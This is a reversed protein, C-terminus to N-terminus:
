ESQGEYGSESSETELDPNLLYILWDESALRDPHDEALTQARIDVVKELLIIAEKVQGNAEYAGALAHQSALRSPHDEALTQAEIDAVKELLIIAENVQGNAKYAGALAHQSALRSPHDEALTQAEIDVVKELLIIAENVQGNAQYAMALAHQSALRDPHDEALTQAKIDVVKELLIIAEKVQGNAEYAGALAHQSALRDPHDEALTQAEIDVVKELLIIAEKVQGNAKYASALAHQSALRSPHDEALTQAEIDVVKELLIIAENVQGNAQYAGALAHQSSLRDPHDEDFHRNRWNYAEELSRTAEKIRGDVKLCRGVWFLLDSKEAIDLDKSHQLLRSAHPLYERWVERNVYDDYPFVEALHRIAKEDTMATRAERQIWIRTALHVLSHMDFVKSEGRRTLFAYACLTGIADLQEISEYGPLMSQPIGKPEICSIFSLLDAAANDSRRIQDFSILWTTAVANQSEPYRTRDRFEKSILHIANQPASHLREVYEAVPVQKVNIYAAAQAIALPHYALEKLLAATAAEDRTMNKQVLSNEFFQNAEPPDMQELDVVDSGVVSVAVERSRTTFLTLGDGSEPLYESIGGPRDASGFLIDGDDANDVVLLWPGATESSLYRKVSEKFDEDNGGSQISLKKAIAIFAQEFTAKSLVPVWFVSFEPRHKKTWYALKLAVQTKGVGGLGVIAVKQSEKSEFLKTKLTDLTKDRGVFRQNEPLPIYHCPLAARNTLARDIEGGTEEVGTEVGPERSPMERLGTGNGDPVMCKIFQQLVGLIVRYQQDARDHCRAMQMHNADISEVTELTRPLDLKSSFDDVVKNHLGKMGAIGRAEQLSHIQIRSRDAITKFEEHINDLVENSEELTKIIKKNSDQLALLALNSAIDGWGAYASGRHPTGLFIILKTRRQCTDSRRIADKVIIGGLSHAVFLFPDENQIEREIRVAFDRGHQSVSNKNNAEFLGGIADANYGYTWVRAEPIDQTLYEDPWFLKSLSEENTGNDSTSTTASTSASSSTKSKFLSKIIDRKGSKAPGVDKNGRNVSGRGRSDEWTRQPHGRLGHVFIINVRYPGKRDSHLGSLETFGIRHVAM